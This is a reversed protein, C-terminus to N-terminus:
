GGFKTFTPAVPSLNPGPKEETLSRRPTPRVVRFMAHAVFAAPPFLFLVPALYWLWGPVLAWVAGVLMLLAARLHWRFSGRPARIRIIHIAALLSAAITAGLGFGPIQWIDNEVSSAASPRNDLFLTLALLPIFALALAHIVMAWLRDHKPNRAVPRCLEFGFALLLGLFFPGLFAGVIPGLGFSAAALLLLPAAVWWRLHELRTGSPGLM